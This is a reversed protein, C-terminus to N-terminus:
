QLKYQLRQKLLILCRQLRLPHPHLLRNIAVLSVCVLLRLEPKKDSNAEHNKEKSYQLRWYYIVLSIASNETLASAELKRVQM